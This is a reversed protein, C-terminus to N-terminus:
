LSKDSCVVPDHLTHWARPHCRQVLLSCPHVAPHPLINFITECKEMQSPALQSSHSFFFVHMFSPTIAWVFELSELVVREM